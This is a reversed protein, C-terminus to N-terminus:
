IRVLLSATYGTAASGAVTALQDEWGDSFVNDSALSLRGLNGASDGYRPDQYADVSVTEPLALQSTKAAAGGSTASTIEDYIELHAHPWRGPYCGPYVSTFTVLGNSDAVQLGRLYNQDAEEYVSYLADATCHWIYVAAGPLAAGSSADVVTLQFQLPIGDATGALGAFSTTIDQREVGTETLVNPGNTGDAPFPGGSEDPIEDGASFVSETSASTDVSSTTTSTDGTTESSIASTTETSTAPEATPASSTTARSCAGLLAAVGVGGVLRMAQRRDILASLDRHLGGFDDHGGTARNLQPRDHM